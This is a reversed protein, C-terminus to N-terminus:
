SVQEGEGDDWASPPPCPITDRDMRFNPVLPASPITPDRLDPEREVAGEFIVITDV